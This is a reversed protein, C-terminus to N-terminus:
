GNALVWGVRARIKGMISGRTGEQNALEEDLIQEVLTLLITLSIAREGNEVESDDEEGSTGDIAAASPSETGLWSGTGETASQTQPSDSPETDSEPENEVPSPSSSRPSEASNDSAPSDTSQGVTGTTTRAGATEVEQNHRRYITELDALLKRRLNKVEDDKYADVDSDRKRAKALDDDRHLTWRIQALRQDDGNALLNLPDKTLFPTVTADYARYNKLTDRKKSLVRDRYENTRYFDRLKEVFLRTDESEELQNRQLNPRLNTSTIHIEGIHWYPYSNKPLSSYPPLEAESYPNAGGVAFGHQVLRFGALEGDGPYLRSNKQHVASWYEAVGVDNVTIKGTEWGEVAGPYSRYIREGNVEIPYLEIGRQKYWELLKLGYVFNPHLECPCIRRVADKISGIDLFWNSLRTPHELNVITYHEDTDTEYMDISYNPNLADGIHVEPNIAEVISKFRITLKYLINSGRKTTFMTLTEFFSLGAWVGVGKHGTLAVTADRKNSVAISKVKKIDIEDMGIGYDFFSLTDGRVEIHIPEGPLAGFADKQMRHADVANQVYERIVEDPQYLGKALHELLTSGVDEITFRDLLHGLFKKSAAM